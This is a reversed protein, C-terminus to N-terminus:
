FGAPKFCMFDFLELKFDYLDLSKRISFKIICLVCSKPKLIASTFGLLFM